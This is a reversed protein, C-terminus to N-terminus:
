CAGSEWAAFFTDVDAGDVGGDRNTDAGPLSAEWDAFFAGTDGGDIGGDCNYDGVCMTLGAGESVASGCTNTVVCDYVGADAFVAGPLTLTATAASPNGATEIAEGDRRWLFSFPGTGGPLVSFEAVAGPCGGVAAPQGSITAPVCNVPLVAPLTIRYTQNGTGPRSASAALTRGDEALV